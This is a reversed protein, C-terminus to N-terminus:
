LVLTVPAMVTTLIVLPVITMLFDDDVWRSEPYEALLAVPVAVATLAAVEVITLVQQALLLGAFVGAYAVAPLAPYTRGRRSWACLPDIWAMGCFVPIVLLMPFFLFGLLLGITGWAYASMREAEYGRMGFIPLRLAIRVVEIAMASGFFLFLVAERPVGGPLPDPIWYYALFIPSGLHFARRFLHHAPVDKM